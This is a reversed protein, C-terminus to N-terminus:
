HHNGNNEEDKPATQFLHLTSSAISTGVVILITKANDTAAWATMGALFATLLITAVNKAIIPNM